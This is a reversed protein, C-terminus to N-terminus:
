TNICFTLFFVNNSAILLKTVRKSETVLRRYFPVHPECIGFQHTVKRIRKTFQKNIFIGVVRLPQVWSRRALPTHTGNEISDHVCYCGDLRQHQNSPWIELSPLGISYGGGGRGNRHSNPVLSRYLFIIWRKFRWTARRTFPLWDCQWWWYEIRINNWLMM